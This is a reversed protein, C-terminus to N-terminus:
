ADGEVRGGASEVHDGDVRVVEGEAGRPPAGLEHVAPQAVEGVSLERARRVASLASDVRAEAPRRRTM